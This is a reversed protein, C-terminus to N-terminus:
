KGHAALWGGILQLAAPAFTEEIVGYEAPSGTSATQFLHNVGPVERVTVDRSPGAQLGQRLAALNAAAPVQRDKSGNLALVPCTVKPLTQAPRDALLARYGPSTAQKIQAEVLALRAPDTSGEYNLLPLLKARAQANDPTQQLIDLVQRQANEVYMLQISDVNQVRALALTQQVILENGPLGPAALLVLLDPGQPQGAARIAATGGESHGILGVKHKNIGPRARLFALAARADTAYDASTTGALTGGSQGVGRDDFRLVAWGRRTLYDALV